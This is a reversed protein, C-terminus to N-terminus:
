CLLKSSDQIAKKSSLSTELQVIEQLLKKFIRIIDESDNILQGPDDVIAELAATFVELDKNSSPINLDDFQLGPGMSKKLESGSGTGENTYDYIPLHNFSADPQVFETLENLSVGM